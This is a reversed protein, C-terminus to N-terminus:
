RALMSEAATAPRDGLDHPLFTANDAPSGQLYGLLSLDPDIQQFRRAKRGGFVAETGAEVLGPLRPTLPEVRVGDDEVHLIRASHPFAVPSSTLVHYFGSRGPRGVRQIRSAHHHGCLYMRVRPHSALLQVVDHRNAVLYERDWADLVLPEWARYLPHHGLVVIDEETAESIADSLFRMMAPAIYGGASGILTTDLGILRVGGVAESFGGFGRKAGHGEVSRLFREKTMVGTRPAEHNGAVCYWSDLRAATDVFAELDHAGQGRNDINDGGFLVVDVGRERCQAVLDEFVALSLHKLTATPRGFPAVHADTIHAISVRRSM